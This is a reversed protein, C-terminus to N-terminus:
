AGVYSEIPSREGMIAEQEAKKQWYREKIARDKDPNKRRWERMYRNKAARAEPTLGSKKGCCEKAEM